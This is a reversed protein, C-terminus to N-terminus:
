GQIQIALDGLILFLKTKQVGGKGVEVVEALGIQDTIILTKNVYATDSLGIADLAQLIRTPTSVQDTITIQDYIPLTKMAYVVDAISVSDTITLLKSVAIIEALAIADTITINPKHRFIQDLLSVADQIIFSKDVKVQESLGIADLVEKLIGGTIVTILESLGISDSVTFTKDRLITELATIADTIQLTKNALLSDLSAVSDSIALTKDRLIADSLSLSDTVEKLVTETEESGWSGHSPEPSVYKRIKFAYFRENGFNYASYRGIALHVRNPVDSNAEDVRLTGDLEVKINGNLKWIRSKLDYWTGAVGTLVGSDYDKNNGVGAGKWYNPSASWNDFIGSWALGDTEGNYASDDIIIKAGFIETTIDSKHKILQGDSGYANELMYSAPFVIDTRSHFGKGTFYSTGDMDTVELYHNVANITYTPNGDVSPWRNTNLTINDFPDGFIFTNDFNSTTTQTPAGYYVYVTAEVTSLDDIVEVWFIAYDSDVKSEMWYDLLTSGDNDTFRVDGFDTRCHSNLYVDDDGDTGSGYHVTIQKQYLTGAGAANQIVHSKRYSFGTLWAM